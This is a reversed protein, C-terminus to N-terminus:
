AALIEERELGVDQAVVDFVLSMFERRPGGSPRDEFVGRLQDALLFSFPPNLAVGAEGGRRGAGGLCGWARRMASGGEWGRFVDCGLPARAFSSRESLM